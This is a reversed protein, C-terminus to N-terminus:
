LDIGYFQAYVVLDMSTHSCSKLLRGLNYVSPFVAEEASCEGHLFM